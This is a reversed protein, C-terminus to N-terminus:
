DGSSKDEALLWDVSADSWSLRLTKQHHRDSVDALDDLQECSIEAGNAKSHPDKDQLVLNKGIKRIVPALEDSPCPFDVVSTLLPDGDVVWWSAPQGELWEALSKATLTYHPMQRVSM